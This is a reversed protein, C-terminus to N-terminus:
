PTLEDRTSPVVTLDVLEGLRGRHYSPTGFALADTRARKLYLHAPHEWTFGIGGHLQVCEEAATQAVRSCVVQALSAAVSLDGPATPTASAACAAAYRAVARAQTIETWLDALRHKLAQYSALVRGFQRREQLYGITMELCAEAVGLQESALLAAAVLGGHDLAAGGVDASAVVTGAAGDFRLDCLPRTMDLSAFPHRGVGDTTADVLALGAPTPVVLLDAELAGCVLPVSGFLEGNHFEVTAACSANLPAGFPVALAVVSVGSAAANLADKVGAALLVATAAVSSTLFPVDAVSRGLEELVVAAERWTAGAGGAEEPVPLGACGVDMALSSWLKRDHGPAELRGLVDSWAARAQLMDRVAGRLDDEIESYLLSPVDQEHHTTQTTV